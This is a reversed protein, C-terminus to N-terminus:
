DLVRLYPECKKENNALHLCITMQMNLEALGRHIEIREHPDKASELLRRILIEEQVIVDYLEKGFGIRKCREHLNDLIAKVIHEKM